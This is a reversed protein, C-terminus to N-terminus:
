IIFVNYIDCVHEGAGPKAKVFGEDVVDWIEVKVADEKNKFTWDITGV